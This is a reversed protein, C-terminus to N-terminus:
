ISLDLNACIAREPNTAGWVLSSFPIIRMISITNGTRLGLRQV